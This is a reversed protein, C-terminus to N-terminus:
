TSRQSEPRHRHQYKLSCSSLGLVLEEFLIGYCQWPLPFLLPPLCMSFCIWHTSFPLINVSSASHFEGGNLHIWQSFHSYEFCIKRRNLLYWSSSCFSTCSHIWCNRGKGHESLVELAARPELPEEFIGSSSFQHHCSWCCLSGDGRRGPCSELPIKRPIHSARWIYCSHKSIHFIWDFCATELM